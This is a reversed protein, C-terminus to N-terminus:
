LDDGVNEYEPDEGLPEKRPRALLPGSARPAQAAGYEVGAEFLRVAFDSLIRAGLYDDALLDVGLRDAIEQTLPLAVEIARRTGFKKIDEADM